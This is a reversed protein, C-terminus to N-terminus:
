GVAALYGHRRTQRGRDPHHARRSDKARERRNIEDIVVVYPRDPDAAAARCVRKFVGDRLELELGGAGSEVPKYGEVFDEYSYTPHFTLRTLQPVLRQPKSRARDGSILDDLRAAENPELRFLTGQMRNVVPESQSLVTDAQLQDWSPGGDVAEGSGVLIKKDGDADVFLGRAIQAKAVVAKVPTAEYGFVTDGLEVADYNRQLRGYSYDVTGEDLLQKWSWQQPNAVVLWAPREDAVEVTSFRAEVEALERASGIARAAEREASGGALLWAAHRRASFTKGTGPPGYFILQGTRALLREAELHIPPVPPLSVAATPVPSTGGAHVFEHYQEPRVTVIPLAWATGVVVQRVTTDFWDVAVTQQDATLDPRFRYGGAVRGLGLVTGAGRSAVVIDGDDLSRFRDLQRAVRNLNAAKDGPFVEELVARIEDRGELLTLDGVEDWGVRIYGNALCDEWLAGEDGPTVKLITHSPNPDAWDYLFYAIELPQWGDFVPLGTLEVFLRRNKGVAGSAKADVGFVRCFFDLHTQSYITLLQDPFYVWCTKTRVAPAGSLVEIQDIEDWRGESGLRVLEAFGQSIHAWADDQSHYKAEFYWSGDRRRFVLHKRSSGGKISGTGESDFELWHSFGDPQGPQGLAYRELPVDPWATAPFQRVIEERADAAAVLQESNAERDWAGVAGELDLRGTSSETM